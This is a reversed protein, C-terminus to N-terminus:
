PQSRLSDLIEASVWYFDTEETPFGEGVARVFFLYKGDPSVSPFREMNETNVEPGFCIPTSWSGDHLHFSVFVDLRGGCESDAPSVFLLFREDPDVFPDAAVDVGLLNTLRECSQYEGGIPISRYIGPRNEYNKRGSFYMTGNRTLSPQGTSAWASDFLGLLPEPDYWGDADQTVRWIGQCSDPGRGPMPRRTSFFISQGDTSYEFSGPRLTEDSSISARQPPQLKEGDFVTYFLVGMEELSPNASWFLSDGSPSITLRSHPYIGASFVDPALKVPTPGPPQQGYFLESAPDQSSCGPWIAAAILIL